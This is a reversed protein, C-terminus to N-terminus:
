NSVISVVNAYQTIHTRRLIQEKSTRSVGGVNGERKDGEEEREKGKGRKETTREGEKVRERERERQRTM